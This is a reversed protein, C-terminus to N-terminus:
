DEDEGEDEGEDEIGLVSSAQMTVGHADVVWGPIGDWTEDENEMALAEVLADLKDENQLLVEFFQHATEYLEFRLAHADIYIHTTDLVITHGGIRQTRQPPINVTRSKVKPPSLITGNPANIYERSKTDRHEIFGSTIPNSSHVQTQSPRPGSTPPSISSTSSIPDSATAAHSRNGSRTGSSTSSPTVYSQSPNPRMNNTKSTQHSPTRHRSHDRRKKEPPTNLSSRSASTSAHKSSRHRKSRVPPMAKRSYAGLSKTFDFLDLLTDDVDLTHSGQQKLTLEEKAAKLMRENTHYVSGKIESNYILKYLM